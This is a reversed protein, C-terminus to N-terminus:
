NENDLGGANFRLIRKVESQLQDSSLENTRRKPLTLKPLTEQPSEEQPEVRYLYTIIEDEFGYRMEQFYEFSERKYEVLPDKQGYGRFGIAEKLHDMVLLHRKWAADIIQIISVKEHWRLVEMRPFRNEKEDYKTKIAHSIQTVASSPDPPLHSLDVDHPGFLQTLRESFHELNRTAVTTCFQHHLGEIIEFSIQQIYDKTNGKLIENRLNYFYIRQKNMVDDYELLHKRIEFHHTEVRKQSKEISSSVMRSEIPEDDNLGFAAMLTKIREGGFIRM